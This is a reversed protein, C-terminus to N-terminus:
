TVASSRIAEPYETADQVISWLSNILFVYITKTKQQKWM